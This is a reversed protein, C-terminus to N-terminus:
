RKHDSPSYVAEKKISRDKFIKARALLIKLTNAMLALQLKLNLSARFIERYPLNGTFMNWLVFQLKQSPGKKRKSRALNFHAQTLLPVSSILDNLFFLIRGYRNDYIINRKAKKYYHFAFSQSSIGHAFAAEAAMEATHFASEIGNKYHRSFSADGIVVLRDTYPKRAPSVTIRPFCFCQPKAPLLKKSLDKFKRFEGLIAQDADKLGILTITAFDRKPVVTAYRIPSSKPVYIHISNGFEKLITEEGLRVEAQFTILTKPPRYGFGLKKMTQILSSNIGFAGVVLDAQFEKQREKEGYFITPLGNKDGSLRIDFVPSSIVNAGLDQAWSLLFDDFSITNPFTSFRPGNGRYVTIISQSDNEASLLSLVDNHTHLSYGDARNVIRGEPLFIGENKLKDYLSEAIVGACLNCGRPGSQRFDKGDFITIGINMKRHQANKLAFHAFLSGAPGGGIVAIRAGDELVLGEHMSKNYM